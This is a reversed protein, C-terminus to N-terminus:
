GEGIRMARAQPLFRWHQQVATAIWNLDLLQAGGDPPAPREPALVDSYLHVGPNHPGAVPFGPAHRAYLKAQMLGVLDGEEDSGIGDVGGDGTGGVQHWLEDPRELQLLSVVLCEFAYPVLTDVM